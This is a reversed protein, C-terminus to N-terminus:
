ITDSRNGLKNIMDHNLKERFKDTWKKTDWLFEDCFGVVDEGTVELVNKNWWKKIYVSKM